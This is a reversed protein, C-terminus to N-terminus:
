DLPEPGRPKSRVFFSLTLLAVGIVLVVIDFVLMPQLADHYVNLAINRAYSPIDLGTAYDFPNISRAIIAGALELLGFFGLTSGVALIPRKVERWVVWILGILVLALAILGYYAADFYGLYRRADALQRLGDQGFVENNVNYVDPIQAIFSDTFENFYPQVVNNNLDAIIASTGLSDIQARVLSQNAEMYAILQQQSLLRADPPLFNQPIYQVIQAPNNVIYDEVGGLIEPLYTASKETWITWLNSQLTSKLQTLDISIALRDTRRQLYDYLQKTISDFQEKLWPEYVHVVSIAMDKVAPEAAAYQSPLNFDVRDNLINRALDTVNISQVERNVFSQSLVTARLWTSTGILGLTIFLLICLVATGLGKVANM